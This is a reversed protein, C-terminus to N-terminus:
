LRRRRPLPALMDPGPRWLTSRARLATWYRSNNRLANTRGDFRESLGEYVATLVALRANVSVSPRPRRCRAILPQDALAAVQAAPAARVPVIPGPMLVRNRAAHDATAWLVCFLDHGVSGAPWFVERRPPWSRFLQM